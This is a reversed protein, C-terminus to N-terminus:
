KSELDKIVDALFEMQRRLTNPARSQLVRGIEVWRRQVENNTVIPPDIGLLRCVDLVRDSGSSRGTEIDSVGAQTIGGLKRALDGQTWGRAKRAAKMEERWEATTPIEPRSVGTTPMSGMPGRASVLEARKENASEYPSLKYVSPSSV